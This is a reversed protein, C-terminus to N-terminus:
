PAFKWHTPPPVDASRIGFRREPPDGNGLLNFIDSLVSRNEAYYFHGILNTDVASADITDIGPVVVVSRSCDGARPYSGNIKKSAKLAKDRASCYLTVRNACARVADALQRFVDSDIDPATLVIQNFHPPRAPGASTALINLANVLARNGMSHAVLHIVGAGSRLAVEGLFTGLHAVTWDSNNMDGAYEYLQSNSPWSYLIPAGPFGLDYAIQATRYVADNFAVKFGHIFVLAENKESAKVRESLESFFVDSTKDVIERIVFHKKPDERYLQWVTPREIKAMQHDRPISVDCTGLHLGGSPSRKSGFRLPNQSAVERDTAYFVRMLWHDVAGGSVPEAGPRDESAGAPVTRSRIRWTPGFGGEGAEDPVHLRVDEAAFRMTDVFIGRIRKHVSEAVRFEVVARAPVNIFRARPSRFLKARRRTKVLSGIGPLVFVGTKRTERVAIVALEKLLRRVLAKPVHLDSAILSVLENTKM